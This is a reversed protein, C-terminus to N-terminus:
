MNLLKAQIYHFEKLKQQSQILSPKIVQNPIQHNDRNIGAWTSANENIFVNNANLEVPFLQLM